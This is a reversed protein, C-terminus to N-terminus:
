PRAPRNAIAQPRREDQLVTVHQATIHSKQLDPMFGRQGNIGIQRDVYPRLNINPAPTVYSIVNGRRDLLVFPPAGDKRPAVQSLVGSVDFRQGTSEENRAIAGREAISSAVTAGTAAAPVDLLANQRAKLRDFRDIKNLLQQAQGREIATQARRMVRETRLRLDSFSWTTIEEAVMASLDLDIDALATIFSKRDDASPGRRATRRPKEAPPDAAVDSQRDASDRGAGDRNASDREIGGRDLSDRDSSDRDASTLHIEGTNRRHKTPRRRPREDTDDDDRAD